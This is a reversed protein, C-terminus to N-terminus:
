SRYIQTSSVREVMADVTGTMMEYTIQQALEKYEAEYMTQCRDYLDLSVDTQTTGIRDKSVRMLVFVVAYRKIKHHLPDVKIESTDYVGLKEALDEIELDAEQIYESVDVKSILTSKIDAVTIYSM